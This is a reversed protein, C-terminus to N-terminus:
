ENNSPILSVFGSWFKVVKLQDLKIYNSIGRLTCYFNEYLHALTEENKIEQNELSEKEPYCGSIIENDIIHKIMDEWREYQL